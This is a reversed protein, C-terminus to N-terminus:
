FLFAVGGIVTAGSHPAHGTRRADEYALSLEFRSLLVRGGISWDLKRNGFAGNERGIAADLVLPTRKVPLTADLGLYLNARGGINAQPPCWAASAGVTAAGFERAAGAQVELYSSNPVGPFLYATSQASLTAKGRRVSYGASLDLEVREGGNRALHSAFAGAFLGSRHTLNLEAQLAPKGDTSSIGGPRYDSVVDVRGDISWEPLKGRTPLPASGRRRHKRRVNASTAAQPVTDVAAASAPGAAALLALASLLDIM